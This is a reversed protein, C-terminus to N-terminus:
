EVFSIVSCTDQTNKRLPHFKTDVWLEDVTESPASSLQPPGSTRFCDALFNGFHGWGSTKQTSSAGSLLREWGSSSLFSFSDYMRTNPIWESIKAPDRLASFHLPLCHSRSAPASHRGRAGRIGFCATPCM